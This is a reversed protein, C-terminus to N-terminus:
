LAILGLTFLVIAVVFLTGIVMDAAPGSTLCPGPVPRVPRQPATM